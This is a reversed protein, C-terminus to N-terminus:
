SEAILSSEFSGEKLYEKSDLQWETEKEEEGFISLMFVYHNRDLKKPHV